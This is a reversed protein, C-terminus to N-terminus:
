FECPVALRKLLEGTLDFAFVREVCLNPGRTAIVAFRFNRAIGASGAQAKGLRRTKLSRWTPRRDHRGPHGLRLKLRRVPLATVDLEVAASNNAIGIVRRWVKVPQSQSECVYVASYGKGGLELEYCRKDHKGAGVLVRWSQGSLRGKAIVVEGKASGVVVM